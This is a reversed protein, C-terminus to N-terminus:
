HAAPGESLGRSQTRHRERDTEDDDVERDIHELVAQVDAIGRVVVARGCARRIRENQVRQPGSIRGTTTKVEFGIFRGKYCCLIDPVGRENCVAAKIVWCAPGLTRLFKLILAQITAENKMIDKREKKEL